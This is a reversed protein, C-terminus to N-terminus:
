DGGAAPGNTTATATPRTTAAKAVVLTVTTDPPVEQGEAPDSGIVTGPPADNDRYILKYSSL